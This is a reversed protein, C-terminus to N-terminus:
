FNVKGRALSHAFHALSRILSRLPARSRLLCHPALPRSLTTLLHAFPCALPGTNEDPNKIIRSWLPHDGKLGVARNAAVAGETAM